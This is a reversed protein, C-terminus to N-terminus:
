KWKGKICTSLKLYCLHFFFINSCGLSTACGINFQKVSQMIFDKRLKVSSQAFKIHKYNVKVPLVDAEPLILKKFIDDTHIQGDIVLSFFPSFTSPKKQKTKYNKHERHVARANRKMHQFYHKKLSLSKIHHLLFMSCAPAFVNCFLDLASSHHSGDLLWLCLM